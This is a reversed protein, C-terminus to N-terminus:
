ASVLRFWFFDVGYPQGPFIGFLEGGLRRFDLAISLMSLASKLEDLTLDDVFVCDGIKRPLPLRQKGGRHRTREEVSRWVVDGSIVPVKTPLGLRRMLRMLRALDATSMLDRNRAITATIVLDFSVAEGHPMPDLLGNELAPSFTHGLDVLRTLDSERLNGRLQKLMSDIAKTIIDAAGDSSLWRTANSIDQTELMQFLIPDCGLAIKIVEGLGSRVQRSPLDRLLGQDLLVLLPEYFTGILNKLGLYNVATKIGVAADVFGLLTTPVRIYPVGRRYISAAFAGVDLVAGGGIIIVPENRRDLAFHELQEVINASVELRKCVEGGPLALVQTAISHMKFYTTMEEILWHPIGGDVIVFRRGPVPGGYLVSLNDPSFVAKSVRIEYGFEDRAALIVPNASDTLTVSRHWTTRPLALREGSLDKGWSGVQSM